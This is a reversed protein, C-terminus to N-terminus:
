SEGRPGREIIRERHIWRLRRFVFFLGTAILGMSGLVVFYGYKYDLEPMWKFNM